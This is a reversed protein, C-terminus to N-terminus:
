GGNQETMLPPGSLQLTILYREDNAPNAHKFRRVDLSVQYKDGAQWFTQPDAGARIEARMTSTDTIPPHDATLVPRWHARRLQDQLAVATAIAEDLPLTEVQPSLTLQTVNGDQDAYLSLLKAAPTVFGYQPDSFLLVAPRRVYLNIRNDGTLLPLTSRSQQRIQSYSEGITLVVEDAPKAKVYIEWVLAFGLLLGAVQWRWKKTRAETM